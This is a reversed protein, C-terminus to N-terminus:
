EDKPTFQYSLRVIRSLLKDKRMLEITLEAGAPYSKIKQALEEPTNVADDLPYQVADEEWSARFVRKGSRGNLHNFISELPAGCGRDSDTGLAQKLAFAVVEAADAEPACGPLDNIGARAAVRAPVQMMCAYLVNWTSRQM